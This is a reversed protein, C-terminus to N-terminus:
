KKHGYRKMADKSHGYRKMADKSHGYRKMAHNMKMASDGKKMADKERNVVPMIMTDADKVGKGSMHKLVKMAGHHSLNGSHGKGM